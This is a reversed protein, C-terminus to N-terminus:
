GIIDRYSLGCTDCDDFIASSSVTYNVNDATTDNSDLKNKDLKGKCVEKIEM